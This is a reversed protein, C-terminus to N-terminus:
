KCIMISVSSVNPRLRSATKKLNLSLWSLVKSQQNCNKFSVFYKYDKFLTSLINNKLRLETGSENM